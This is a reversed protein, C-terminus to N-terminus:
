TANHGINESKVENSVADDPTCTSMAMGKNALDILYNIDDLLESHVDSPRVSMRSVTEGARLRDISARIRPIPGFVRNSVKLLDNLFVPGLCGLTILVPLFTRVSILVNRQIPAFPDVCCQLVFSIFFATLTFLIWHILCTVFFIGQTRFDIVRKSRQDKKTKFM